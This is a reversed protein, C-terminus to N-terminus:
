EVSLSQLEAQAKSMANVLEIYTRLQDYVRETQTIYDMITLAGGQLAQDLHVLVQQLLNEDIAQVQKQLQGVQVQLQLYRARTESEVQALEQQAAAQQLRAAKVRRSNSFLPLSIGILPGRSAVSMDTNRRYGVTLRPLWGQRSAKVNHQAAQVRAEALQTESTQTVVDGVPPLDNVAITQVTASLAEPTAGLAALQLTVRQIDGENKAKDSLLQIRDMQVRDMELITADGHTLRTNCLRLLTDANALQLTLLHATQRASILDYCLSRAELMIDRHLLAYERDLVTQQLRASKNRTSYLTPFDFEQSVILESSAVGSTGRQFFPSYEVSTAGLTNDARTQAMTAEAQQRATILKPNHAAISSLIASVDPLEACSTVLGSVTQACGATGSFLFCLLFILPLIKNVPVPIKPLKRAVLWRRM